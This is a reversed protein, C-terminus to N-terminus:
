SLPLSLILNEREKKFIAVIYIFVFDVSLRLSVFPVARLFLPLFLDIAFPTYIINGHFRNEKSEKKKKKALTFKFFILKEAHFNHISHRTKKKM